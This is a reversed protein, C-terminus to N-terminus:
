SSSSKVPLTMILLYFLQMLLIGNASSSHQSKLVQLLRGIAIGGKIGEYGRIQIECEAADAHM